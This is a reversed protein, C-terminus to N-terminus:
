DPEIEKLEPFKLLLMQVDIANDRIEKPISKIYEKATAFDEITYPNISVKPRETCIYQKCKEYVWGDEQLLNAHTKSNYEKLKSKYKSSIDQNKELWIIYNTLERFAIKVFSDGYKTRIAKYQYPLLRVKGESDEEGDKNYLHTKARKSYRPLLETYLKEAQLPSLNFILDILLDYIDNGHKNKAAM